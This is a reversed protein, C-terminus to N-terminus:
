LGNVVHVHQLTWQRHEHRFYWGKAPGPTYPARLTSRPAVQQLLKSFHVVTWKLWLFRRRHIMAFMTRFPRDRLACAQVAKRLERYAIHHLTRPSEQEQFVTFPLSAPKCAAPNWSGRSTKRYAALAPQLNDSM